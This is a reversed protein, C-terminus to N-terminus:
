DFLEAIRDFFGRKKSPEEDKDRKEDDRRSEKKRFKENKEDREFLDELMDLVM